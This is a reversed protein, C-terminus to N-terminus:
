ASLRNTEPLGDLDHREEGVGLRTVNPVVIWRKHVEIVGDLALQRLLRSLHEPTIGLFQALECRKIPLTLRVQGNVPPTVSALNKLFRLVRTRSADSLDALREFQGYVERSLMRQVELSLERHRQLLDLFEGAAMRALRCRTVTVATIPSPHGVIILAAGIFHNPFRLGLIRERGHEDARVLKVLGDALWFVDAVRTEQAFLEVGAPYSHPTGMRGGARALSEETAHPDEVEGLPRFAHSTDM